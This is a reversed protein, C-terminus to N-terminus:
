MVAELYVMKTHHQTGTADEGPPYYEDVEKQLRKYAAPDRLLYYFINSLVSATTDSGAVIALNADAIVQAM